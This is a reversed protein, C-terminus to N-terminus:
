TASSSRRHALLREGARRAVLVDLADRAVSYGMSLFLAGAVFGLGVGLATATSMLQIVLVGGTVLVAALLPTTFLLIFLGTRGPRISPTGDAEFRLYFFCSRLQRISFLGTAYLDQVAAAERPSTQHRFTEAFLFEDKAALIFNVLRQNSSAQEALFAFHKYQRRRLYEDNFELLSRIAKYLATVVAAIAAGLVSPSNLLASFDM